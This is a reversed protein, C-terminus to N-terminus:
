SPFIIKWAWRAGFALPLFSLVLSRHSFGSFSVILCRVLKLGQDCVWSADLVCHKHSNILLGTAVACHSPYPPIPHPLYPLPLLFPNQLFSFFFAPQTSPIMEFSCSDMQKTTYFVNGAAYMDLFSFKRLCNLGTRSLFGDQLSPLTLPTESNWFSRSDGMGLKPISMPYLPITCLLFGLSLPQCSYIWVM